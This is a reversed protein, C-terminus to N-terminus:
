VDMIKYDILQRKCFKVDVISFSVPRAPIAWDTYRSAVPQVVPPPPRSNLDLTLFINVEGYRGSRSQPGGLRRYFPYRPRPAPPYPAPAHRPGCVV